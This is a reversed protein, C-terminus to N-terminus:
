VVAGNGTPKVPLTERTFTTGAICAAVAGAEEGPELLSTANGDPPGGQAAGQGSTNAGRSNGAGKLKYLAKTVSQTKKLEDLTNAGDVGGEGRIEVCTVNKSLAAIDRSTQNKMRDRLMSDVSDPVQMESCDM